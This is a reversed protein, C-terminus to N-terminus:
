QRTVHTSEGSQNEERFAASVAALLNEDPTGDAMERMNKLDGPDDALANFWAFAIDRYLVWVMLFYRGRVGQERKDLSLFAAPVEEPLLRLVPDDTFPHAMATQLM